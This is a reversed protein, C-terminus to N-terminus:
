DSTLRSSLYWLGGGIGFGGLFIVAFDVLAWGLGAWKDLGPLLGRLLSPTDTLARGLGDRTIEVIGDVAHIEVVFFAVYCYHIVAAAVAFTGLRLGILALGRMTPIVTKKPDSM